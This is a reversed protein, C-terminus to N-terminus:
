IVAGDAKTEGADPPKDRAPKEIRYLPEFFRLAATWGAREPQSHSLSAGGPNLWVDSLTAVRLTHWAADSVFM